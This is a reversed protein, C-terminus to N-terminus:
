MVTTLRSPRIKLLMSLGKTESKPGTTKLWKNTLMKRFQENPTYQRHKQKGGWKAENTRPRSAKNKGKIRHKWPTEPFNLETRFAAVQRAM